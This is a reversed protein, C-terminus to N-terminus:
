KGFKEVTPRELTEIEAEPKHCHKCVDNEDYEPQGYLNLSHHMVQFKLLDGMMQQIQGIRPDCFEIVRHCRVCILHDHQKNGLSPEFQAINKGFQHKTVLDCALLLDLTNYVTARSVRYKKNKMQLFLQEVDFHNKRAYIEELIAYREPTKRHANKTLFETFIQKVKEQIATM